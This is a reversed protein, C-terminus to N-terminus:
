CFGYYVKANEETEAFKRAELETEGVRRRKVQGWETYVVYWQKM